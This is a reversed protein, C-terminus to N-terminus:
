RLPEHRVAELRHGDPDRVFAAFYGPNYHERIGPAGEDTAGAAVAAGHFAGVAQRNPASFALHFATGLGPAGDRPVVLAFPAEGDFGPPGFGAARETRWLRVVGLPALAAEYLAVSRDLDRVGLSLHDFM